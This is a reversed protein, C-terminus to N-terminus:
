AIIFALLLNKFRTMQTRSSFHSCWVFFCCSDINYKGLERQHKYNPNYNINIETAKSLIDYIEYYREYIDKM